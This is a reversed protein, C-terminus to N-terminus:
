HGTSRRSHIGMVRAAARLDNLTRLSACQRSDHGRWPRGAVSPGGARALPWLWRRVIGAESVRQLTPPQTERILEHVTTRPLRLVLM